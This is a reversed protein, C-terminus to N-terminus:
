VPSPHPIGTCLQCTLGLGYCQPFLRHILKELDTSLLNPMLWYLFPELDSWCRSLPNLPAEDPTGLLHVRGVSPDHTENGGTYGFRFM